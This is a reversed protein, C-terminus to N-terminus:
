AVATNCTRVHIMGNDHFSKCESEIERNGDQRGNPTLADTQTPVKYLQKGDGVGSCLLLINRLSRYTDTAKM